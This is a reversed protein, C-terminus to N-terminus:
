LGLGRKRGFEWDIGGSERQVGTLFQGIRNELVSQWPVLRFGLGDEIVAFRGSALSAVGTLRGSVYEGTKSSTFTLGRDAAMQNGVRDVERQELNAVTQVPIRIAGDRVTAYGMKVLHEARRRLADRVDRGFGSDVMALPERATLERDLWTAGDGDIQRGLSQASLTKTRPGDGHRTADYTRGREIIDAPVKWHDDDLREVQGARRLAELRRVHSRVFAEPDKGEREFQERIRGLHHSPRYLGDKEGRNLAINRDVTRPASAAPGV